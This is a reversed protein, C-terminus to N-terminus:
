DGMAFPKPFTHTSSNSSNVDISKTCLCPAVVVNSTQDAASAYNMHLNQRHRHREVRQSASLKLVMPLSSPSHPPSHAHTSYKMSDTILHTVIFDVCLTVVNLIILHLINPHAAYCLTLGLRGFPPPTHQEHHKQYTVVFDSKFLHSHSGTCQTCLPLENLTVFQWKNTQRQILQKILMAKTICRRCTEGSFIYNCFRFVREWDWERKTM